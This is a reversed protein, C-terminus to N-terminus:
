RDPIHVRVQPAADARSCAYPIVDRLVWWGLNFPVGGTRATSIVGTGAITMWFLGLGWFWLAFVTSVVGVTEAFAGDFLLTGAFM